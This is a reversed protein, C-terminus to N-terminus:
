KFDDPLTVTVVALFKSTDLSVGQPLEDTFAWTKYEGKVKNYARNLMSTFMDSNFWKHEHPRLNCESKSVVKKFNFATRTIGNDLIDYVKTKFEITATKM